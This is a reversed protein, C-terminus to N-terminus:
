GTVKVRVSRTLSKAYPFGTDRIVRARFRYVQVGVTSRFRYSAKWRGSSDTRTTRFTQWGGPVKAMLEIGVGAEPVPRSLLRGLFRVTQGNRLSRQNTKITSRSPVTLRVDLTRSFDVNGRNAKYAYRITRSPGPPIVWRAVGEEDTILPVRARTWGAGPIQLRQLVEITAGKISAGNEDRLTVTAPVRRGFGVRRRRSGSIAIRAQYSANAGNDPAPQGVTTGGGPATGPPTTGPPPNTPTTGIPTPEDPVNDIEAPGAYVVSRNGAADELRVRLEHKGDPVLATDFAVEASVSPKCPNVHVFDYGTQDVGVPQCRGGFRDVITQTVNAFANQGAKKVDILARYVGGGTDAAEFAVAKVGKMPGPQTLSGTVKDSSPNSLDDLSVRLAHVRIQSMPTVSNRDTCKADTYASGCVVNFRLQTTGGADAVSLVNAAANWSTHSGRQSCGGNLRLACFDVNDPITVEGLPTANNYTDQEAGHGFTNSISRWATFNGITTSAPAQFRWTQRSQAPLDFDGSLSATLSGGSGCSNEANTWTVGNQESFWGDTPAMAGTPLRCSYVTYSGAEAAPPAALAVAALTLMVIRNM